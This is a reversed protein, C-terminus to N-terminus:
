PLLRRPLTLFDAHFKGAMPPNSQPHPAQTPARAVYRLWKARYCELLQKRFFRLRELLPHRFSISGEEYTWSLGWIDSFIFV